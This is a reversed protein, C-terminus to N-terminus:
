RRSYAALCVGTAALGAVTVLAQTAPSWNRQMIDLREGPVSGDGQLAPVGDGTEHPELQNTIGRVGHVTGVAAILDDLERALIPGSLTVQGNRTFVDIARPHSSMRGVKARVREVLRVDDVPEDSLRARAEAAIGKTRNAMDRMTADMGDRTKRAARLMKDRAVARRRRGLNPDLLYAVAAGVGIGVLLNPNM